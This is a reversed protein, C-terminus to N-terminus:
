VTKRGLVRRMATTSAEASAAHMPGAVAKARSSETEENSPVRM